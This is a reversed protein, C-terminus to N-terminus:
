EEIQSSVKGFRRERSQYDRIADYLRDPSFDPWYTETIYFETYAIQWLLYNSIRMEGSTRILLDPDPIGATYLHNDIVSENIDSPSLEGSEVKKAVNRVMDIIETRAGYNLALILTLGTNESLKEIAANFEKQIKEPMEDMRGITLLRVNNKNLQEVEKQLTSWLLKMLGSVETDPRAWNETSFTYLTLYDIGVEGCARVIERVADVGAKHGAIRPLFRKKAWRGNGDMIIAVHGPLREKDIDEPLPYKIM